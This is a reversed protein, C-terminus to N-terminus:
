VSSLSEQWGYIGKGVQDIKSNLDLLRGESLWKEQCSIRLLFRIKTLHLNAQQLFDGQEVRKSYQASVLQDLVDFCYNLLRNTVVPRIFKPFRSTIDLLEHIIQEWLVVVQMEREQSM